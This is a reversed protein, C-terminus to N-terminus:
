FLSLQDTYRYIIVKKKLKKAYNLAHLTGKSSGNWFAIVIDAKDVIEKNRIFPAIRGFETYNPLFELFEINYKHALEKAITDIGKAGGSIILTPYFERVKNYVEEIPLILNRSGIIAIKM